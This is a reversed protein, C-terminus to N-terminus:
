KDCQGKLKQQNEQIKTNIACSINILTPNFRYKPNQKYYELFRNANAVYAKSFAIEGDIIYTTEDSYDGRPPLYAGLKKLSTIKQANTQSDSTINNLGYQNLIMLFTNIKERDEAVQKVSNPVMKNYDNQMTTLNKQAIAVSQRQDSLMSQFLKNQNLQPNAKAAETANQLIRQKANLDYQQAQIKDKFAMWDLTTKNYLKAHQTLTKQVLERHNQPRLWEKNGVGTECAIIGYLEDTSYPLPRKVIANVGNYFKADFIKNSPPPTNKFCAPVSQKMDNITLGSNAMDTLKDTTSKELSQLLSQLNKSMIARNKMNQANTYLANLFNVLIADDIAIGDAPQIKLKGFFEPNKNIIQKIATIASETTTSPAVRTCDKKVQRDYRTFDAIFKAFAKDPELFYPKLANFVIKENELLTILSKEHAIAVNFANNLTQDLDKGSLLDNTNQWQRSIEDLFKQEQMSRLCAISPVNNTAMASTTMILWLAICRWLM